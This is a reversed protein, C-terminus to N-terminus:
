FRFGLFAEARNRPGHYGALGDRVYRFEPVISFRGSRIAVGGSVVPGLSWRSYSHEFSQTMKEGAHNQTQSYYFQKGAHRTASAGFGFFPRIKADKKAFYYKGVLPIDWASGSERSFQRLLAASGEPLVPFASPNFDVFGTSGERRWTPSLELAFRQRFGIEFTPGVALPQNDSRSIHAAQPTFSTNDRSPRNLLFGARAGISYDIKQAIAIHSFACASGLIALFNRIM